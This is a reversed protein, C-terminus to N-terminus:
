GVDAEKGEDACTIVGSRRTHKPRDFLTLPIFYGASHQVRSLASWFHHQHQYLHYYIRINTRRSRLITM